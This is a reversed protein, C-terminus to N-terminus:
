FGLAKIISRIWSVFGSEKRPAIAEAEIASVENELETATRLLQADLRAAEAAAFAAEKAAKKAKAPAIYFREMSAELSAITDPCNLKAIFDIMQSAKWYDYEPMYPRLSELEAHTM